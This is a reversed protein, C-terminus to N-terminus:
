WLSLSSMNKFSSIIRYACFSFWIHPLFALLFLLLVLYITGSGSKASFSASVVRDTPDPTISEFGLFDLPAQFARTCDPSFLFPPRPYWALRGRARHDVQSDQRMRDLPPPAWMQILTIALSVAPAVLLLPIKWEVQLTKSFTQSSPWPDISCTLLSCFLRRTHDQRWSM